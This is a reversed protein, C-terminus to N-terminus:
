KSKPSCHNCSLPCYSKMLFFFSPRHCYAKFHNCDPFHDRCPSTTEPKNKNEEVVPKVKPSPISHPRKCNYLKNIKRVDIESLDTATGIVQTFGPVVSEITNQGNRSFATSDYHLISRYDYTEGLTNQLAAPIKEFQAEMGPIINDWKINIHDDRDPRSMEHLFRLSHM